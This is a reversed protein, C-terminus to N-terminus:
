GNNSLGKLENSTLSKEHKALYNDAFAELEIELLKNLSRRENEAIFKLSNKLSDSVRLKIESMQKIEKQTVM